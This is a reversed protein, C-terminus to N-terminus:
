NVTIGADKVVKKWRAIEEPLYKSLYEPSRREAPVIDLGLEELRKQIAPNDVTDSMAKNLKRM